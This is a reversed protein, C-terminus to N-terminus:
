QIGLMQMVQQDSYGHHLMALAQGIKDAPVGAQQLQQVIAQDQADLPPMASQPAPSQAVPPQPPQGPAQMGPATGMQDPVQPQEPQPLLANPDSVPTEVGRINPDIVPGAMVDQLTVSTSGANRLFDLQATPPIDSYNMRISPKDFMPSFPSVQQKAEEKAQKQAATLEPAIDEPNDIASAIVIRRALQDVDIAGGFSSNLMPYKMVLEILNTASTVQEADDTINTTNPDVRFRLVETADDFNLRIMDDDSLMTVDFNPLDRLKAATEQDLQIEQIGSNEAFYINVATEGWREYATEFMKKVYNDDISLNAQNQQVGASTKSQTANGVSSPISTNPSSLLSLIQSQQLQYLAPYNQIASTDIEMPVVKAEMNNQADIVVNPAYKVKTKDIGYVVVPPNLMLARNYQYMQMDGDILNQLGGVLEVIGRGLPNSGDIDGYMFLLPIEGRPDKNVKTRLVEESAPNFTYFKAGVGRQFGTVFEVAGTTDVGRDREIPTEARVDKQGLNNRVKRLAPLNWTSEYKDGRKGAKSAQKSERSILADIDEKRWWSRMFIYDCNNDSLKGPQVFIDGWYPLTLDTSFEGNHSLFPVYMACSGFTLSREVASWCKQLLYYQENAYPIIKNNFIFSAVITLWDNEDSEVKGTPLQQIIRRPTKRIISATTGDTTKPYAKDISPHPRNRAIREFETFPQTLPINYTRSDNWRTVLNKETLFQFAAM